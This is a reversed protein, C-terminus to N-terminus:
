DVCANVLLPRLGDFRDSYVKSARFAVGAEHMCVYSFRDDGGQRPQFLLTGTETTVPLYLLLLPSDPATNTNEAPAVLLPSRSPM